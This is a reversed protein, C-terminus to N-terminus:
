IAEEKIRQFNERITMSEMKLDLKELIKLNELSKWSNNDSYFQAYISVYFL